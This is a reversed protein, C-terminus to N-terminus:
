KVITNIPKQNMITEWLERIWEIKRDVDDDSILNTCAEHAYHAEAIARKQHPRLEGFLLIHRDRSAPAIEFLIQTEAGCCWGMLTGISVSEGHIDFTIPLTLDRKELFISAREQQTIFWETM